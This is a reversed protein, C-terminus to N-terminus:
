RAVQAYKKLTTRVTERSVKPLIELDIITKTLLRVTWESYGDPPDSSAVELIKAEVEETMKRPSREVWNEWKYMLAAKMGNECYDKLTNYVTIDSVGVRESIKLQSEPTGISSDLLLLVQARKKFSDATKPDDIKAQAYRRERDTLKVIYKQEM